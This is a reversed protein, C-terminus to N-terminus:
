FLPARMLHMLYRAKFLRKKDVFLPTLAMGTLFGGIHAWFAVNAVVGAFATTLAMIVQYIFWFGIYISAPLRLFFPLFGWFVMVRINASPFILLYAGLVGSIAGSAGVAPILWPNVGTSMILNNLTSPPTLMLATVHFLVAGLGSLIYFFFYRISGMVNEVNDGFIYLYFMNGLIHLLGAHVFMSTFLTYLRQGALIYAPILGLAEVVDNYSRAGKVLASPVILGVIYVFFNALIISINVKPPETRPVEDGLPLEL